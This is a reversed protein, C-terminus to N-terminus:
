LLDVVFLTSSDSGIHRAAFSQICVDQLFLRQLNFMHNRSVDSRKFNWDRSFLDRSCTIEPIDSRKFILDAAVQVHSIM